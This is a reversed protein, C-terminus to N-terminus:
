QLPENVNMRVGSTVLCQIEPRTYIFCKDGYVPNIETQIANACAGKPWLFSYCLAAGQPIIEICLRCRNQKKNIISTM